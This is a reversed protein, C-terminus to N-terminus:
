VLVLMKLNECSSVYAEHFKDWYEDTPFDEVNPITLNSIEIFSDKISDQDLIYEIKQDEEEDLINSFTIEEKKNNISVVYKELCQYKKKFDDFVSEIFLCTDDLKDDKLKKYHQYEEPYMEAIQRAFTENQFCRYPNKVDKILMDNSPLIDCDFDVAKLTTNKVSTIIDKFNNTMTEWYEDVPLLSPKEINCFYRYWYEYSSIRGFMKKLMYEKTWTCGYPTRVKNTIGKANDTIEVIIYKEHHLM